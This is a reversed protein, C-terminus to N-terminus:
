RGMSRKKGVKFHNKGMLHPLEDSWTEKKAWRLPPKLCLTPFQERRIIM